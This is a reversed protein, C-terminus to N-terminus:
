FSGRLTAGGANPTVWPSLTASEEDDDGPKLAFLLVVGTAGAALATIWSIDAILNYTRLTSVQDDSCTGTADSGCESALSSDESSSLAAFVGFSVLFAGGTILLATAAPHVGGSEEPESLTVAPEEQNAIVLANADTARQEALRARMRQLRANLPAHREAPVEGEQLYQELANTAEELHGGERELASYINYLLEARSSLEYAEQFYRAADAFQGVTFAQNGREFLERAEDESPSTIEPADSSETQALASSSTLQSTALCVAFLLVIRYAAM